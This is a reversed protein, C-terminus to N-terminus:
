NKAIGGNGEKLRRLELLRTTALSMQNCVGSYQQIIKEMMEHIEGIQRAIPGVLSQNAAAVVTKALADYDLQVAKAVKDALDDMSIERTTPLPTLPLAEQEAAPPPDIKVPSVRQCADLFDRAKKADVYLVGRKANGDSIVRFVPIDDNKRIHNDLRVREQTNRTIDGTRSFSRPVWQADYITMFHKPIAM